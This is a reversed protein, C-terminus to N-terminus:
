FGYKCADLRVYIRKFVLGENSDVCQVVVNSDPNSKLLYEVYRRLHTIQDMGAGQILDM